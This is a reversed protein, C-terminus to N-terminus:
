SIAGTPSCTISTNVGVTTILFKKLSATVTATGGSSSLNEGSYTWGSAISKSVSSSNVWSSSGDYGFNATLSITAIETGNYKYVDTKTATKSSTSRLIDISGHIVLTTEITVGNDLVEVSSFVEDPTYAAQAAPALFTVTMLAVLCVIFIRKKM